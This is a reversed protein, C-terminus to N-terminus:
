IHVSTWVPKREIRNALCSARKRVHTGNVHGSSFSSHTNLVHGSSSFHSSGGHSSGGSSKGSSKSHHTSPFASVSILTLAAVSTILIKSFLRQM